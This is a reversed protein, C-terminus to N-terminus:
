PHSCRLLALPSRGRASKVSWANLLMPNSAASLWVLQTKTSRFRGAFSKRSAHAASLTDTPAIERRELLRVAADREPGHVFHLLRHLDESLHQGRARRAGSATIPATAHCGRRMSSLLRRAPRSRKGEAAMHAVDKDALAVPSRCFAASSAAAISAFLQVTQHIPIRGPWTRELNPHERHLRM